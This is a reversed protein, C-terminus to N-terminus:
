RIVYKQLLGESSALHDDLLITGTAAKGRSV